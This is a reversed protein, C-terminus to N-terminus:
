HSATAEIRAPVHKHWPTGAYSDPPPLGIAAAEVVDPHRMLAAEVHPCAINEGGRIVMDKTSGDIFLYIIFEEETFQRSPGIAGDSVSPQLAHISRNQAVAGTAVEAIGDLAVGHEFKEARFRRDRHDIPVANRFELRTLRGHKQHIAPEDM